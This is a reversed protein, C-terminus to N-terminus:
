IYDVVDEVYEIVDYIKNCVEHTNISLCLSLIDLGAM